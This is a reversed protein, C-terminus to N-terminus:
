LVGNTLTSTLEARLQFNDKSCTGCVETSIIVQREGTVFVIISM